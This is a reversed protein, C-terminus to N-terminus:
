GNTMMGHVVYCYKQFLVSLYGEELNDNIRVQNRIDKLNKVDRLNPNFNELKISTINEINMIFIRFEEQDTPDYFTLGMDISKKINDERLKYSLKQSPQLKESWNWDVELQMAAMAPSILGTMDKPIFNYSDIEDKISIPLKNYEAEWFVVKDDLVDILYQNETNEKNIIVVDYLYYHIKLKDLVEKQFCVFGETTDGNYHTSDLSRATSSNLDVVKINRAAEREISLANIPLTVSGLIYMSNANIDAKVIANNSQVNKFNYDLHKSHTRYEFEAVLEYKPYINNDTKNIYYKLSSKIIMLNNDIYQFVPKGKLNSYEENFFTNVHTPNDYEYETIYDTVLLPNLQYLKNSKFNRHTVVNQIFQDNKSNISEEKPEELFFEFNNKLWTSKLPISQHKVVLKLYFDEGKERTFLGEEIIAPIYEDTSFEDFILTIIDVISELNKTEKLLHLYERQKM